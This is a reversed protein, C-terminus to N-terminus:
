RSFVTNSENTVRLSDLTRNMNPWGAMDFGFLRVQTGPAATLTISTVPQALYAVDVLDGYNLNWYNFDSPASQPDSGDIDSYSM